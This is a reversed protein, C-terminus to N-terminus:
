INKLFSACLQKLDNANFVGFPEAKLNESLDAAHTFTLLLTFPVNWFARKGNGSHEAKSGPRVARQVINRGLGLLRVIRSGSLGAVYLRQVARDREGKEMSVIRDSFHPGFMSEAIETACSDDIRPHYGDLYVMAQDAKCDHFSRLNEVSEFQSSVMSTDCIGAEGLYQRYSSWRYDEPHANGTSLPNLHIYRVVELLYSDSEVPDSHYRGQFVHGVHGHRGNFTQSYSTLLSSMFSGLEAFSLTTWSISTIRWSLGRM